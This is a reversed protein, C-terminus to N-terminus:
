SLIAWMFEFHKYMLDIHILYFTVVSFEYVIQWAIRRIHLPWKICSIVFMIRM